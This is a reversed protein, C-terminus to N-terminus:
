DSWDFRRHYHRAAKGGLVRFLERLFRREADGNGLEGVRITVTIHDEAARRAEFRVRRENPLLAEASLGKDPLIELHLMAWRLNRVARPIDEALRNFDAHWTMTTGDPLSSGPKTATMAPGGMGPWTRCATLALLVLLTLCRASSRSAPSPMM